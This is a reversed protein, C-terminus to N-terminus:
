LLVAGQYTWDYSITGNPFFIIQRIDETTENTTVCNAWCLNQGNFDYVIGGHSLELTKSGIRNIYQIMKDEQDFSLHHEGIWKTTPNNVNKPATMPRITLQKIGMKKCYSVLNEIEQPNDIYGNLAICSLRVNLKYKHIREVVKDLNMYGTSMHPQYILHNKASDYHVMSLCITTLGLDYWEEMVDFDDMWPQYGSVNHFFVKQSQVVRAYPNIGRELLIGNTQLEKFPFPSNSLKGLYETIQQHFITPEGKGTLLVTSVGCNQALQCAIKFNRWNIEDAKPLVGQLPTTRSVCYPCKANCASGGVVISMTQIKM